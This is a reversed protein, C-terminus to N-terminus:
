LILVNIGMSNAVKKMKYLVDGIMPTIIIPGKYHVLDNSSHIPAGFISHGQWAQDYLQVQECKIWTEM